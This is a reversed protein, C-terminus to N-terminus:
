TSTAVLAIGVAVLMTGSLKQITFPEGFVVCGMAMTLLFGLAVFAYAISVDLRALVFLWMMASFGYLFLGVWVMPSRLISLAIPIAGDGSALASQVPRVAMGYKLAIQALASCGVSLLILTVLSWAM